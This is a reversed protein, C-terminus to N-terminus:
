ARTEIQTEDGRLERVESVLDRGMWLWHEPARRIAQELGQAVAADLRPAGDASEPEARSLESIVLSFRQDSPRIRQDAVAPVLFGLLLPAGTRQAIRQPGVPLWIQQGFFTVRTSRVRGGLDPLFGVARGRKLARLIKHASGPKGRHIVELGRGARHADVLADLGPDYSERVVISARPASSVPSPGGGGAAPPTVPAESTSTAPSAASPPTACLESIRAAILEFPGLHLSVFVVGRGAALAHRLTQQSAPDVDVKSAVGGSRRLLLCRGLNQGANRFVQSALKPNLGAASLNRRARGRLKPSLWYTLSGVWGLAALLWAEPLRDALWLQAIVSRRILANKARQTRTWSGGERLDRAAPAVASSVHM